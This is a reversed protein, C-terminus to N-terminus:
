TTITSIRTPYSSDTDVQNHSWAALQEAAAQWTRTPGLEDPTRGAFSSPEDLTTSWTGDTQRALTAVRAFTNGNDRRFVHAVDDTGPVRAAIYLRDEAPKTTM